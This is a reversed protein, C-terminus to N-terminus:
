SKNKKATEILNLFSSNLKEFTLEKVSEHTVSGGCRKPSMMLLYDFGPPIKNQNQRFVERLLRKLRNRVVANGHIKGISVGLRSHGCENKAMYMVLGSKDKENLRRGKDLVAKFQSNSILRKNKGFSFNKHTSYTSNM